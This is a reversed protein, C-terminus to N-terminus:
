KKSSQRLLAFAALFFLALAATKLAGEKPFNSFVPATLLEQKRPPFMM